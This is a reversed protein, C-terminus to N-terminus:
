STVQNLYFASPVYETLPAVNYAFVLCGCAMAELPM